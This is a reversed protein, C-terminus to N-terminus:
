SASRTGSILRAVLYLLHEVALEVHGRGPSRERAVVLDHLLRRQGDLRDVQHVIGHRQFEVHRDPHTAVILIQLAPQLLRHVLLAIRQARDQGLEAHRQHAAVGAHDAPIQRRMSGYLAGAGAAGARAAGATLM